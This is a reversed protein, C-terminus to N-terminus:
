LILNNILYYNLKRMNKKIIVIKVFTNKEVTEVTENDM